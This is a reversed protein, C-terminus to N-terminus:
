ELNEAQIRGSKKMWASVALRFSREWPQLRRRPEFRQLQATYLRRLSAKARVRQLVVLFSFSRLHRPGADFNLIQAPIDIIKRFQEATAAFVANINEFRLCVALQQKVHHDEAFLKQVKM